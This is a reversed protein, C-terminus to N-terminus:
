RVPQTGIGHVSRRRRGDDSHSHRCGDPSTPRFSLGSMQRRVFHTVQVNCLHCMSSVLGSPNVLGSRHVAAQSDPQEARLVAAPRDARGPWVQAASVSRCQAAGMATMLFLAAIVILGGSWIVATRLSFYVVAQTSLIVYLSWLFDFEPAMLGM